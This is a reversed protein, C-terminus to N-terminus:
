TTTVLNSKEPRRQPNPNPNTNPTPNLSVVTPAATSAEGTGDTRGTGETGESVNSVVIPPRFTFNGASTTNTKRESATIPQTLHRTRERSPTIPDTQTTTFAIEKRKGTLSRTIPGPRPLPPITRPPNPLRRTKDSM